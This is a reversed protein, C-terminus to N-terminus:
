FCASLDVGFGAGEGQLRARGGSLERGGVWEMWPRGSEALPAGAELALIAHLGFVESGRHPVVRVNHTRGLAYIQRLQTLGGCWCIDPQYVQHCGRALLESFGRATFEHEGGAIPVPSRGALWAYGELDDAPLPEELWGLDFEALAQSIELVAERDSWAMAADAMLAIDPGVRQRVKRVGQVLVDADAPLSFRGLGLKITEYGADLAVGIGADPDDGAMGVTFYAPTDATPTPSLLRAVSVDAAKGRLDWLALDVGSLAMIALGKRGYALTARYQREWLEEIQDADAGLLLPRLAEEIVHRAAAGGGGIGYGSLGSDTDIAVIIQGMTGRWGTPMGPPTPCAVRIDTINM